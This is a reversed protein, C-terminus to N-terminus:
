TKPLAAFWRDTSTWIGLVMDSNRSVGKLNRVFHIVDGQFKLTSFDKCENSEAPMSQEYTAAKM